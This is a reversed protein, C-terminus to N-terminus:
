KPGHAGPRAIKGLQLDELQKCLYKGFVHLLYGLLVCEIPCCNYFQYAKELVLFPDVLKSNLGLVNGRVPCCVEALRSEIVHLIMNNGLQHITGLIRLLIDLSPHFPSQHLSVLVIGKVIPLPDVNVFTFVLLWSHTHPGKVIMRSPMLRMASDLTDKAM